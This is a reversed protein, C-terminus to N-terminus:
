LIQKIYGALVKAAQKHCLAGPHQRSGINTEDTNPLQLYSVKKDGSKEIYAAIGEMIPM